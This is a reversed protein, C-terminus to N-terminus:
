ILRNERAIRIAEDRSNVVLKFYINKIHTKVTEIDIILEGAIKRRSKGDSVAELVETERRTLPSSLCKQFSQMVLKAIGASMAGGGNMVEKISEIIKDASINKTLFGSAGNKLATFIIEESEYVTLILVHAKPLLKKLKPIIDVGRAGPLQVDLLIIDPFDATLKYEAEEFSSYSGTVIFGPERELLYAYSDRITKDDEILAIFIEPQFKTM